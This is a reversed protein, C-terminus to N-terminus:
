FRKGYGDIKKPQSYGYGGPGVPTHIIDVSRSDSPNDVDDAVGTVTVMQAKNWSDEGLDAPTFTLM